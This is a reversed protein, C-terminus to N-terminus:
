MIIFYLSNDNKVKIHTYRNAIITKSCKTTPHRGRIKISLLNSLIFFRSYLIQMRRKMDKMKNSRIMNIITIFFHCRIEYSILHRYRYIPLCEVKFFQINGKKNYSTEKMVYMIVYLILIILLIDNKVKIHTYRNTIIIKSCKIHTDDEM